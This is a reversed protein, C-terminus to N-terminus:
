VQVPRGMLVRVVKQLSQLSLASTWGILAQTCSHLIPLAIAHPCCPSIGLDFDVFYLAQKETWSPLGTSLTRSYVWWIRLLIANFNPPAISSHTKHLANERSEVPHEHLIKQRCMQLTNQWATPWTRYPHGKTRNSLRFARSQHCYTWPRACPAPCGTHIDYDLLSKNGSRPGRIQATNLCRALNRIM